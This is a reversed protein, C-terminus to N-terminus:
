LPHPFVDWLWFTAFIACFLMYRVAALILCALGYGTGFFVQQSKLQHKIDIKLQQFIILHFLRVWSSTLLNSQGGWVFNKAASSVYVGTAVIRKGLLFISLSASFCVCQFIEICIFVNRKMFYRVYAFFLGVFFLLKCFEKSTFKIRNTLKLCVNLAWDAETQGLKHYLHTWRVRSM